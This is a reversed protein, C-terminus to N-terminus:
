QQAVLPLSIYFTSGKGPESQVWIRGEHAEVILRAIYLGLGLGETKRAEKVRYYREFLHPQAEPPIGSGRDVVSIVADADQREVGIEVPRDIPSYKLANSILNVVARELRDPDVLALLVEEGARMQLRMRDSPTGVRETIDRMLSGLEVPRKEVVLAGTEMRASEVLDSIMREIRRSGAIIRDMEGVEREMGRESLRHKLIQAFGFVSSLPNRL